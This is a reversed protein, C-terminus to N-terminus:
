KSPSKLLSAYERRCAPCNIQRIMFIRGKVKWDDGTLKGCATSASSLLLHNKANKQPPSVVYFREM